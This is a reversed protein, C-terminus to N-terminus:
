STALVIAVGEAELFCPTCPYFALAPTVVLVVSWPSPTGHLHQTHAPAGREGRLGASATSPRVEIELQVREHPSMGHRQLSERQRRQSHGHSSMSRRRRGELRNGPQLHASASLTAHALSLRRSRKVGAQGQQGQGQQGQQGQGQGLEDGGGEEERQGQRTDISSKPPPAAAAGMGKRKVGVKAKGGVKVVAECAAAEGASQAGSSQTRPAATPAPVRLVM